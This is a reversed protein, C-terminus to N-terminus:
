SIPFEIFMICMEMDDFIGVYRVSYSDYNFDTGSNLVDHLAQCAGEGAIKKVYEDEAYKDSKIINYM